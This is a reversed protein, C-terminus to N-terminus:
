TLDITFRQWAPEGQRWAQGSGSNLSLHALAPLPLRQLTVSAETPGIQLALWGLPYEILSPAVVFTCAKAGLRVTQVDLRHAHGQFVARVNGYRRLLDLVLDGNKVGYMEHWRGRGAWPQLLQHLFILVPRGGATALAEELRAAEGDAVWGYVPDDPLAAAIQAPSHGQTNLLVLRAGPVDVTYGQGPSADQWLAAFHAWDGGPVCDHNGPLAYFPAPAQGAFRALQALAAHYQEVPMGFSGGGCICDGLHILLDPAAEGLSQLLAAELEATAGQLQTRGDNLRYHEGGWWFHTDSCLAISTTNTSTM